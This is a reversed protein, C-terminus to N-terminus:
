SSAEQGDVSDNDDVDEVMRKSIIHCKSKKKVQSKGPALPLSPQSHQSPKSHKCIPPSVTRDEESEVDIPSAPTKSPHNPLVQISSVVSRHGEKKKNGMSVTLQPLGCYDFRKCAYVQLGTLHESTTSPPADRIM